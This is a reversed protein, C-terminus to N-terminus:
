PLLTPAYAVPLGGPGGLLSESPIRTESVSMVHKGEISLDEIRAHDQPTIGSLLRYQEPRRRTRSPIAWAKVCTGGPTGFPM